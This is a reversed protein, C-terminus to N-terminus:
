DKLHSLRDDERRRESAREELLAKTLSEKSALMGYGDRIVDDPEGQVSRRRRKPRTDLLQKVQRYVEKPLVITKGDPTILRAPQEM